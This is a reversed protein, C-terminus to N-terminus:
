KQDKVSTYTKKMTIIKTEGDRYTTRYKYVYQDGDKYKEILQRSKIKRKPIHQHITGLSGDKKKYYYIYEYEDDHEIKESSM